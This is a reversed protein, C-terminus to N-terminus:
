GAKPKMDISRADRFAIYMERTAWMIFGLLFLLFPLLALHKLFFLTYAALVILSTLGISAFIGVFFSFLYFYKLAKPHTASIAEFWREVKKDLWPMPLISFISAAIIYLLVIRKMGDDRYSERM